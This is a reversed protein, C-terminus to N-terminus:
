ASTEASCWKTLSIGPCATQTFASHPYIRCAHPNLTLLRRRAEFLADTLDIPLTEHTWTGLACVAHYRENGYASGQAASRKGLARGIFLFGHHCVVWHYAIDSWGHHLQHFRQAAQVRSACNKHQEQRDDPNGSHHVALGRLGGINAGTALSFADAAGWQARSVIPVPSVAANTREHRRQTM